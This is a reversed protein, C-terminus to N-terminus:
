RQTDKRLHHRLATCVIAVALGVLVVGAAAHGAVAAGIGFSSTVIAATVFAVPSRAM